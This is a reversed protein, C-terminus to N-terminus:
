CWMPRRRRKPAQDDVDERLNAKTYGTM